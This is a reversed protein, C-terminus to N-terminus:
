NKLNQTKSIKNDYESPQFFIKRGELFWYFISSVYSISISYSFTKFEPLTQSLTILGFIIMGIIIVASFMILLIGIMNQRVGYGQIAVYILYMKGFVFLSVVTNLAILDLDEKQHLGILITAAAIIILLVTM